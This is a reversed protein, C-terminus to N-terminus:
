LAPTESAVSSFVTTCVLTLAAVLVLGVGLFCVGIWGAISWVWGGTMAGIAGGAFTVVMYLTNLRGRIEAGLGFIRAQNAVQGSQMGFDLLNVAIVLAAISAQGYTAALVFCGAMSVLAFANVRAPGWRDALRGAMPALLAGPAGWLGFLGAAAPGLEFASSALHFALTAWLASFGAFCCFSLAMSLRLERHKLLPGLSKLLKWYGVGASAPRKPLFKPLVFFLVSVLVAELLFPARWSGLYEAALGSFTRSLLIGLILGTSLKSVIRGRYEPAALTTAMPILIQAVVCTAAISVSAVLLVALGPAAAAAILGVITLLMMRRILKVPDSCDALPVVLLIGLTYGVQTAVAVLAAREACVGFARAIEALLPQCLYINAVMVGCAFALM